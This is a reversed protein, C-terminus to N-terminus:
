HGHNGALERDIPCPHPVALRPSSGAPLRLTAGARALNAAAARVAMELRDALHGLM